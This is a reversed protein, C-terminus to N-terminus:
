LTRTFWDLSIEMLRDAYGKPGDFVKFIHDAGGITVAEAPQGGAAKMLEQGPDPLFDLSGHISLFAGPYKSLSRDLDLGKFSEYFSRYTTVKKWGRGPHDGGGERGAACGADDDRVEGHGGGPEVLRNGLSVLVPAAWRRSRRASGLSWGVVGVHAAQVGPRKLAFAYASETDEIRTLITSEIVTRKRDGEGRFNIRLSAIGHRALDEAFHKTLDGGRGHRRCVRPSPPRHARGLRRRPVDVRGQAREHHRRANDAAAAAGTLAIWAILSRFTM